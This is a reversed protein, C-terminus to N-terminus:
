VSPYVVQILSDYNSRIEKNKAAQERIDYMDQLVKYIEEREEDSIDETLYDRLIAIDSNLTRIIYLLDNETEACRMRLNLEYVDNKISRIGKAKFDAFKKSFRAKINDLVSETVPENMNNLINAAYKLERKELESATMMKAKTLTHIAPLRRISFESNLRLVWSMTLLRDDVSKNLFVNSASIKQVASQLYPAYGCSMIFSDTIFENNGIKSFISGIKSVSDKMAYALIERYSRNSRLNFSEDTKTFYMNIQKRVEDITDTDYAIHAIEHLLIATLEKEDLMLMPDFLKSDLELFYGLALRSDQDGMIGVMDDGSFTPFVKMGFFLNDTNNTYIVSRCVSRIFFKNLEIKLKNLSADSHDELMLGMLREITSFDFNNVTTEM